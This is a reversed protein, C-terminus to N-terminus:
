LRAVKLWDFGSHRPVLKMAVMWFASAAPVKLACEM